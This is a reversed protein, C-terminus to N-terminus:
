SQLFDSLKLFNSIKLKVKRVIYVTVSAYKNHSFDILLNKLIRRNPDRNIWGGGVCM